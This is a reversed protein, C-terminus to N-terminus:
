APAVNVLAGCLGADKITQEDDTLLKPPFGGKISMAQGTLQTCYKRLDGVTHDENFQQAKKSGDQFRIQIKTAPKTDDVRFPESEDLNATIPNDIKAMISEKKGAVMTFPLVEQQRVRQKKVEDSVKSELEPLKGIWEAFYNIREQSGPEGVPSGFSDLEEKLSCRDGLYSKQKDLLETNSVNLLQYGM